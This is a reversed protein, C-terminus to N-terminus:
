GYCIKTLDCSTQFAGMLLAVGCNEGSSTPKARTLVQTQEKVNFILPLPTLSFFFSSSCLAPFNESSPHCERPHCSWERLLSLCSCLTNSALTICHFGAVMDNWEHSTRPCPFHSRPVPLRYLTSSPSHLPCPFSDCLFMLPRQFHFTHENSYIIEYTNM